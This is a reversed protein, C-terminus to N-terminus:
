PVNPMGLFSPFPNGNGNRPSFGCKALTRVRLFFNKAGRKQMLNEGVGHFDLNLGRGQEPNGQRLSTDMHAKLKKDNGQQWFNLEM